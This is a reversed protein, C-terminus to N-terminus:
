CDTCQCKQAFKHRFQIRWHVQNKLVPMQDTISLDRTRNGTSAANIIKRNEGMKREKKVRNRKQEVRIELTSWHAAKWSQVGIYKLYELTYELKGLLRTLLLLLVAVNILYHLTSMTKKKELSSHLLIFAKEIILLIIPVSSDGVSISTKSALIQIVKTSVHFSVSSTVLEM